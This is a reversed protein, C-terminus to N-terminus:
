LLHGTLGVEYDGRIEGTEVARSIIDTIYNQIHRRLDIGELSVGAHDLANTVFLYFKQEDKYLKSNIVLSQYLYLLRDRAFITKEATRIEYTWRALYDDFIM